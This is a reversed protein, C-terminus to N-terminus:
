VLRHLRRRVLWVVLATLLGLFAIGAGASIRLWTPWPGREAGGASRLRADLLLGSAFQMSGMMYNDFPASTFTSVVRTQGTKLDVEVFNEGQKVLFRDVGRWAGAFEASTPLAAPPITNGGQPDAFVVSVEERYAGREPILRRSRLALWHGDPSWATSTALNAGGTSLSALVMGSRNILVVAVSDQVAIKEGDPSFAAMEVSGTYITSPPGPARMDYLALQTRGLAVALTKGDPSWALPVVAGPGPWTTWHGTELDLVAMDASGGIAVRAGDPSLVMPPPLGRDNVSARVGLEEALDVRRYVDSDAGLVLLQPEDNLEMGLGHQYLAIARGPPSDSVKNTLSSYGAFRDPLSPQRNGQAVGSVGPRIVVAVLVAVVALAAAVPVLWRNVRPRRPKMVREIAPAAPIPLTAIHARVRAVADPKM